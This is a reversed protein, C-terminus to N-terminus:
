DLKIIAMIKNIAQVDSIARRVCIEAVQKPLLRPIYISPSYGIRGYITDLSVVGERGACSLLQFLGGARDQLIGLEARTCNIKVVAKRTSLRSLRKRLISKVDDVKEKGLNNQIDKQLIRIADFNHKTTKISLENKKDSYIVSNPVMESFDLGSLLLGTDKSVPFTKSIECMDKVQNINDLDKNLILPLVKILDKEWNVRLTNAVDDSYNSAIIVAPISQEYSYTLLHHIESVELIAGDVIIVLCRNFEITSLDESDFFSHTTCSFKSSCDIEVRNVADTKEVVISGLAGAEQVASLFLPKNKITPEDHITKEWESIVVESNVRKAQGVDKLLERFDASEKSKLLHEVILLYLPIGISCRANINYVSNLILNRYAPESNNLGILLARFSDNWGITHLSDDLLISLSLSDVEQVAQSIDKRLSNKCGQIEDRCIVDNKASM